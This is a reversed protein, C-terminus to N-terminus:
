ARGRPLLRHTTRERGVFPHGVVGDCPRNHAQSTLNWPSTLTIASRDIFFALLCIDHALTAILPACENCCCAADTECEVWVNTVTGIMGESSGIGKVRVDKVVMVRDGEMLEQYVPVWEEDYVERWRKREKEEFEALANENRDVLKLEGFDYYGVAEQRRLHVVLPAEGWALECCAGWSDPDPERRDEVVQGVMGKTNIGGTIRVDAVVCVNDGCAISRPISCRPSARAYFPTSWLAISHMMPYGVLHLM